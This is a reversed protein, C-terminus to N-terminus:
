LFYGRKGLFPPGWVAGADRLRRVQKGWFYFNQLVRVGETLFVLLVSIPQHESASLEVMFHFGWALLFGRAM